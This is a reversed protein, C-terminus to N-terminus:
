VMSMMLRDYARNQAVFDQCPTVTMDVIDGTEIVPEFTPYVRVMSRVSGILKKRIDDLYKRYRRAQDLTVPWVTFTDFLKQCDQYDGTSKIRQVRQLLETTATLCKALDVVQIELLHYAQGDVTVIEENIRIGGSALLYNMITVNARSHAGNIRDMNEPQAQYRRFGHRCMEIICMEQLKDKGLTKLWNKYLGAQDLPEMSTIGMYLANIEARLEELSTAESSIFESINSDTVQITDGPQYVTDGITKTERFTHTALRGSAHGITEHLLVQLDWLDEYITDNPDYKEIFERQSTTRFKTTLEPNLIEGASRWKPYIVQKSGNTSRIDEYNPLCYAAICAQPGYHGAGHLIQNISVNLRPATRIDRKFEPPNPLTDEIQLLMPTIAELDVTRITIEAAAEGRIKMPDCYNEIFGQTILLRSRAQLWEISHKKFLEEDGSVYYDILHEISAVLHSDFHEPYKRAHHLARTLWTVTVQLELAYKGTVGYFEVGPKGEILHCYANIRNQMDAPLSKFAENTMGPGYYNNGSREICGDICMDPDVAPDFIIPILHSCDKSYRTTTLAATLSEATFHTLGIRAPTRKNNSQENAFYIGHNAWLYVLYTDLDQCFAADLQDKRDYLYECLELIENSCRHNQDRCMRNFPLNARHIYYVFVREPPTLSDILGLTDQPVFLFEKCTTM